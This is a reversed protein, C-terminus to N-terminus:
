QACNLNIELLNFSVKSYIFPPQLVRVDNWSINFVSSFQTFMPAIIGYIEGKEAKWAINKGLLLTFRKVAM